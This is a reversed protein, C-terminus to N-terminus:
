RGPGGGIRARSHWLRMTNEDVLKVSVTDGQQHIIYGYLQNDPSWIERVVSSSYNAGPPSIDGQSTMNAKVFETWTEQDKVTVWYDGLLIKSDNNKPDFVIVASKFWIDYDSWNDILEQQTVKSDSESQTKLKGYNGLCGMIFAFILIVIGALRKINM